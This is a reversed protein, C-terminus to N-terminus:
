CSAAPKMLSLASRNLSSAWRSRRYDLAAAAFPQTIWGQGSTFDALTSLYRSERKGSDSAPRVKWSDRRPHARGLCLGFPRRPRLSKPVTAVRRRSAAHHLFSRAAETAAGVTSAAFACLRVPRMASRTGARESRKRAFRAHRFRISSSTESGGFSSAIRAIAEEEVSGAGARAGPSSPAPVCSALTRQVPM